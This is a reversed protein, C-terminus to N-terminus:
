CTVGITPMPISLKFSWDGKRHGVKEIIGKNDRPCAQKRKEGPRALPVPGKLRATQLSNAVSCVKQSGNVYGDSSGDFPHNHTQECWDTRSTAHTYPVNENCIPQIVIYAHRLVDNPGVMLTEWETKQPPRM